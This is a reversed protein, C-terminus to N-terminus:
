FEYYDRGDTEEEEKQLMQQAEALLMNTLKDMALTNWRDRTAGFAIQPRTKLSGKKEMAAFAQIGEDKNFPWFPTVTERVSNIWENMKNVIETFEKIRQEDTLQDTFGLEEYAALLGPWEELLDWEDFMADFIDDM